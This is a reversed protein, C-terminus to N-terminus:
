IKSNNERSKRIEKIFLLRKLNYVVLAFCHFNNIDIKNENDFYKEIRKLNNEIIQKQNIDLLNNKDLIDLDEFDKQHLFLEIYDSIKLKNLIFDFLKNNNNNKSEDNLLRNLILENHKRSYRTDKFKPSIELSFYDKLSFNLFEIFKDIKKFHMRFKYDNKKIVEISNHHKNIKSPLNLEILIKNIEEKTKLKNIIGNIFGLLSNNLKNILKCIINDTINQNHSRYSNDEMKKRGRSYKETLNINIKLKKRGRFSEAELEEKILEIDKSNTEKPLLLKSKLKSGMIYLKIKNNIEDISFIPPIPKRKIKPTEIEEKQVIFLNKQTQNNTSSNTPKNGNEINRPLRNFFSFNFDSDELDIEKYSLNDLIKNSHIISPNEIESDNDNENGLEISPINHFINKGKLFFNIDM